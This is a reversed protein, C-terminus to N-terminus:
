ILQKIQKKIELFEKMERVEPNYALGMELLNYSKVISAGENSSTKALIHATDSIALSNTLDHSVIILTLLEDISTAKNIVDIVKDIMLIDLGSFPEDMLIFKNGTLLQQVISVRQRQGGSLQCPFKNLHEKLDFSHILTNHYEIDKDSHRMAISFNKKITRHELLIYQQTVIGVNGEKVLSYKGDKNLVIQGSDPQNLGALLRFLQTKGIGSRGILSVVQGQKVNPRIINSVTFNIDKLIQSGGLSLCINEVSLLIEKIEYNM